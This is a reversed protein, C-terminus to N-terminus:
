LIAEVHKFIEEGIDEKTRLNGNKICEIEDWGYIKAVECGTNYSDILHKKDNEHIDKKANEDFKNKRNLILEEVYEIPMNLFFIKDPVPIKYIEFELNWLWDLFKRREEKDYIKGAQHVM